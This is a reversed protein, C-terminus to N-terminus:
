SQSWAKLNRLQRREISKRKARTTRTHDTRPADFKRPRTSRNSLTEYHQM